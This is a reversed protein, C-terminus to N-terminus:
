LKINKYGHELLKLRISMSIVDMAPCGTYTPTITVEVQNGENIEVNRVIGLDLISLVPVEPDYVDSLLNWISQVQITDTTTM